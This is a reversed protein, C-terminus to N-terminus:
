RPLLPLLRQYVAELIRQHGHVVGIAATGMRRCEMEHDMLYALQNCLELSSRVQVSALAASFTMAIDSFNDMYPGHVIACGLQGPELINHGGKPVLSGGVFVIPALRYLAGLEGLTDALYIDTQGSVIEGKSRQACILGAKEILGRIEDGRDPHRPALVTLVGPHLTRLREHVGIIHDEEGVHTSTALWVKRGHVMKELDILVSKDHPLPGAAYKLNGLDVAERVGLEQFRAADKTTQALCLVVPSLLLKALKKLRLWTGYAKDSLRANVMVMPVRREHIEMLLNPWLESEFWLVLNPQWHDMFRRVAALKDIPVFQHIVGEPLRDKLLAASTRTGTTILLNLGPHDRHFKELLPLTSLSEGVSVAHIWVLPGLPRDVSTYGLREPFRHPDEKGKKRRLFLYFRILPDLVTLALRYTKLM